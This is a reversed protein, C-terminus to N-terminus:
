IEKEKLRFYTVVWFVPIWLYKLLFIALDNIWPSLQFIKDVKDGSGASNIMFSTLSFLSASEPLILRFM